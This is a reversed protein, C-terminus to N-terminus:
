CPSGQAKDRSLDGASDEESPTGEVAAALETAEGNISDALAKDAADYQFDDPSVTAGKDGAREAAAEVAPTSDNPAETTEATKPQTEAGSPVEQYILQFNQEPALKLLHKM